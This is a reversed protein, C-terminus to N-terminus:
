NFFKDLISKNIKKLVSDNKDVLALENTQVSSKLNMEFIVGDLM